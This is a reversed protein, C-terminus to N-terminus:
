KDEYKGTRGKLLVEEFLAIIEEESFKNGRRFGNMIDRRLKEQFFYKEDRSLVEDRSILERRRSSPNEDSNLLHYYIDIINILSSKVVNYIQEEFEADIRENLEIKLYCLCSLDRKIKYLDNVIENFSGQLFRLEGFVPILVKDQSVLEGDDFVLINIYKRIDEDFSYQIPSGSYVINDKLKKFDHIHGLAVYSFSNGFVSVPLISSNGISDVVRRNCFFSHAILIRPIGIYKDDISNVIDSIKDRYANELKCLFVDNNLGIDGYDQNVILRENIHPVCIVVFKVDSDDELFVVQEDLEDETVLFINFKSFIKKNISFYDKKDHNGAIVVCWRCSTFSLEYFFDNILKQEELGPRKSDYVDGAILLLDIKQLRIFELLFTLFKQQEGLRSFYGIKKGIHWDSTHLVRYNSM